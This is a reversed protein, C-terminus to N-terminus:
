KGEKKEIVSLLGKVSMAKIGPLLASATGEEKGPNFVLFGRVKYGSISKALRMLPDAMQPVVTRSAKAELLMLERHPSPVLFDVELGQQDRFYYVEKGRGSNIQQKIVESAVFGEFIAGLFPSQKLM